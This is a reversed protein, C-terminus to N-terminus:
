IILTVTPIGYGVMVVTAGTTGGVTSGVVTVASVVVCRTVSLRNSFTDFPEEADTVVPNPEHIARSVLDIAKTPWNVSCSGEVVVKVLTQQLQVHVGVVLPISRHQKTKGFRYRRETKERYVHRIDM